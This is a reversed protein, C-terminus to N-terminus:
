RSQSESWTHRGTSPRSRLSCIMSNSVRTSPTAQGLRMAKLGLTSPSSNSACSRSSMIRWRTSRNDARRDMCGSESRGGPNMGGTMRVSITASHCGNKWGSGKGSGSNGRINGAKCSRSNSKEGNSNSSVSPITTHSRSTWHM